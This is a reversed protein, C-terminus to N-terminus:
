VTVQKRCVSKPDATEMSKGAMQAGFV